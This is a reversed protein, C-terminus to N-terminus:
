IIKSYRISQHNSELYADFVMCIRRVLMRGKALVKLSLADLLILKDEQMPALSALADAFYDLCNINFLQNVEKFVLRGHCIIENIVHRRIEDDRNLHVGKVIPFNKTDIANQYVALDTTNQFYAGKFSSISSVGFGLLDCNGHTSYGQFNRQLQLSEQAKALSDSPKAFHDMGLYRYGQLQLFAIAYALINLKEEGSPMDEVRLLRQSKIRHPMHAYNFLSIRDPSLEVVANLTAAFNDLTQHPLGYILDISVSHFKEARIADMLEAVEALCNFRNVAQQVQLDFDQVGMSIRNFGLQRLHRITQISVQGPHIEIAFEGSKDDAFNFLERTANMLHSMEDDSLFTPTGGGWHLQRVLRTPDIIQAYHQMEQIVADIYPRARSKKSTVIKHCGCYYCLSECFPIHTYLSLDRREENSDILTQRYNQDNQQAIFQPATPYSTYRPGSIDYRALLSQDWMHPLNHM